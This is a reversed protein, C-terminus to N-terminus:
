ETLSGGCSSGAGATCGYCYDRWLIERGLDEAELAESLNRYNKAGLGEAQHFDCDYIRGDPDVSLQYRCMLNSVTDENFNDELLERYDELLGEKELKEKFFGLPMNTITYLGSFFVDQEDLHDRYDAELGEQAGPLFAGLPNYVLSLEKTKGYGMENLKALNSIVRDYTGEGRQADVNERTYCPFSVVLHLNEDEFLEKLEERNFCDVANTRLIIEDVYNKAERIFSVIQPHTTPEGGTIDLTKFAHKKLLAICQEMTEESMERHDSNKMVHCHACRLNCKGTVNVQLTTIDGTVRDEKKLRKQFEM